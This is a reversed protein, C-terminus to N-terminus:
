GVRWECLASCYRLRTPLWFDESRPYDHLGVWGLGMGRAKEGMRNGDSCFLQGSLIFFVELFGLFGPGERALVFFALAPFSFVFGGEEGGGKSCEGGMGREEEGDEDM